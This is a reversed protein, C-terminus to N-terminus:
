DCKEPNVIKKTKDNSMGDVVLVELLDLPYDNTIISDLCAGIFNEENKCPIVISVLPLDKECKM